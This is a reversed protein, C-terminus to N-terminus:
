GLWSSSPQPVCLCCWQLTTFVVGQLPHELHSVLGDWPSAEAMYIQLIYLVEENGSSGPGKQCLTTASSLTRNMLWISYVRHWCIVSTLNQSIYCYKFSHAFFFLAWAWKLISGVFIRVHIFLIQCSIVLFPQYAM